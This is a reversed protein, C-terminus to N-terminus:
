ALHGAQVTERRGSVNNPVSPTTRQRDKMMTNYRKKNERSAVPPSVTTIVWTMDCTEFPLGLRSMRQCIDVHIQDGTEDYSIDYGDCELFTHLPAGYCAPSISTSSAAKRTLPGSGYKVEGLKTVMMSRTLANCKFAAIGTAVTPWLSELWLNCPVSDEQLYVIYNHSAHQLGLNIAAATSDPVKSLHIIPFRNETVSFLHSPKASESVIIWELPCNLNKAANFRLACAMKELKANDTSVTILTLM